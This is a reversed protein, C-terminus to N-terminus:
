QYLYRKISRKPTKEFASQRLEIYAIRSYAPLYANMSLRCKEMLDGLQKKNLSEQEVRDMDPYVMAVLKKNREVVVSEGVYPQNNLRDEIEEPYINQGNSSLIMSKCRGKIFINGKSDIIGMDGTRMWGDSTFAAKTAQSNKYYGSMVNAGKVLIEGPVKAQNSSDIKLEIRHVAVGCSGKKFKRWDQYGLIPGCETMGYGVTYPLKIDRMCNEVDNNIAAGGIILVRLRGGFTQMLRERIKSKILGNVVPVHMLIRITPKRLIPFVASKFIKEIVLPVTLIMYPKVTKLSELLVTPSPVKGLFYVHCGGALQYLFEFALGFLHALPLMSLVTDGPHNPIGWQGFQINSSISNYTLMVGKPASATGSTYNIIALDNFNDIPYKIDKANFDSISMCKDVDVNEGHLQKYGSMSFAYKLCKMNEIHLKNWIETDAFLVISESHVVLREVSEAPFEHLLPVVVAEYSTAALFSIAWSTSNKACLAVKDGKHIGLQKFLLHLKEIELAMQGYTYSKGNIDSLADRDWYKNISQQLYTLFHIREKQLLQNM